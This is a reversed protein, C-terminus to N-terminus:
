MNEQTGINEAFITLTRAAADTGAFLIDVVQSITEERSIGADLLRGQYTQRSGKEERLSEDVLQAAFEQIVDTSKEIDKRKSHMRAAWHDVHRFLWGPLLFFRGGAAFGDIFATASLRNKGIGDFSKGLLYCAVCEIFMARFLNLVDVPGGAAEAKRRELETTMANVVQKVVPKGKLVAQQAFLPAVAKARVARHAPDLVSFITPFGNVDVNRYNPSKPYGGNKIYIPLVAAGDSIDIENPAIRIVPGHKKHLDDLVTCEIGTWSLYWLWTPTLRAILPGPVHRLPDQFIRSLGTHLIIYLIIIYVNAPTLQQIVSETFTTM